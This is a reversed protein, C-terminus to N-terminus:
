AGLFVREQERWSAPFGPALLKGGDLSAPHRGSLIAEVVAPSLFAFRVLRSVYSPVLGHQRALTECNLDGVALQEWWRRAKILLKVLSSKVAPEGIAQGDAFVLRMAMGTRSLKVQSTLTLPQADGSAQL